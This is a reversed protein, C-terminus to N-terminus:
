KEEKVRIASQKSFAMLRQLREQVEKRQSMCFFACMCVCSDVRSGALMWRRHVAMGQLNQVLQTSNRASASQRLPLHMYVEDEQVSLEASRWLDADKLYLTTFLSPLPLYPKASFSPLEAHGQFKVSQCHLTLSSSPSQLCSSEGRITTMSIHHTPWM